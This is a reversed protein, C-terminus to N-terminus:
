AATMRRITAQNKKVVNMVVKEGEVSGIYDGITATDFANVIRINNQPPPPPESPAAQAPSLNRVGLRGSSDRDLPMVAEAGAEGMVGLSFSGGDAFMFPTPSSYINNTFAGGNAFAHVSSSGFGGGKAFTKTASTGGTSGGGGGFIGGDAFLGIAAVIMKQAAIRVLEQLIANGFSKWEVKGTSVFQVVAETMMDTSRKFVMEGFKSNDRAADGYEKYAKRWGDSFTQSQLSQNRAQNQAAVANREVAATMEDYAASTMRVREEQRALAEIQAENMPGSNMFAETLNNLAQQEAELATKYKNSAEKSREKVAQYAELAAIEEVPAFRMDFRAASQARNLGENTDLTSVDKKLDRDFKQKELADREARMTLVHQRKVEDLKQTAEIQKIRNEIDKKQNETVAQSSQTERLKQIELARLANINKEVKDEYQELLVNQAGQALTGYRVRQDLIEKYQTFAEKELGVQADYYKTIENISNQLAQSQENTTGGKKDGKGTFTKNGSKAAAEEKAKLLRAAENEATESKKRNAEADTIAESLERYKKVYDSLGSYGSKNSKLLNETVDDGKQNFLRGGEFKGKFNNEKMYKQAESELTARQKLARDGAMMWSKSDIAFGVKQQEQLNRIAGVADDAGQKVRRLAEAGRDGWMVWATAGAALLGAVIGLPGGLAALAGGLSATRALLTLKGAAAIALVRGLTSVAGSLMTVVGSVASFALYSMVAKGFDIVLGANQALIQLLGAVGSVLRALGDQLEPSNVVDRLAKIAGAVGENQNFSTTLLNDLDAKLQKLQIATSEAIKKGQDELLGNSQEVADRVSQKYKELDNFIGRFAKAGWAPFIDEIMKAQSKKDFERIKPIIEDLIQGLKKYEGTAKDIADFGLAEFAKEAKKSNPVYLSEIMSRTYTGAKSGVIGQKGLMNVSGVVEQITIGYQEAVGTVGKLSEAVEHLNAKTEQAVYALMDGAMKFNKALEDPDKSHLNFVELVGVLDETATKMDVEGLISAYMTTQLLGLGESADIGTQQLVRLGRALENVNAPADKIGLLGQQIDRFLTPSYNDSLAAVFKTQYDFEVGQELSKRVASVAAYAAVMQPIFRGYTLWLNDLGGAVGRLTSHLKAQEDRHRKSAEKAEDNAKANRSTANTNNNTASTSASKAAEIQKELQAIGQANGMSAAKPGVKDPASLGQRSYAEALKALRLQSSLTAAEFKADLERMRNHHDQKQKERRKNFVADARLAQEHAQELAKASKSAEAEQELLMVGWDNGWGAANSGLRKSPDVGRNSMSEALRALRLRSAPTATEWKADLAAAREAETRRRKAQVQADKAVSDLHAQLAKNADSAAKQEAKVRKWYADYRDNERQADFRESEKRRSVASAAATSAINSLQKQLENNAAAAAEQERKVRDWYNKYRQSELDNKLKEQKDFNEKLKGIMMVPASGKSDLGLGAQKVERLSEKASQAAARAAQKVQEATQLGAAGLSQKMEAGVTGIQKALDVVNTGVSKFAVKTGDQLAVSFGGAFKRGVEEGADEFEGAAARTSNRLQKTVKEVPNEVKVKNFEALATKFERLQDSLEKLQRASDGTTIGLSLTAAANSM